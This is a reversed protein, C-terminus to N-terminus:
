PTTVWHNRIFVTETLPARAISQTTGAARSRGTLTVTIRRTESFANTVPPYATGSPANPATSTCAASTTPSSTTWTVFTSADAPKYTDPNASICTSGGFDFQLATVEIVNPDTLDEWDLGTCAASTSSISTSRLAQVVGNNLRFGGFDSGANVVGPNPPNRWTTDYAFLICERSTGSIVIDTAGVARFPNATSTGSGENYGSRRLDSVIIDLVARLDQNFRNLRVIDGGSRSAGLYMAIAGLIVLLGVVLGVMLEVLSAGRSGRRSHEMM